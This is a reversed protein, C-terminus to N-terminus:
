EKAASCTGDPYVGRSQAAFGAQAPEPLGRRRGEDPSGLAEAGRRVLNFGVWEQLGV